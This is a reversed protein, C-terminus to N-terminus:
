PAPWLKLALSALRSAREAIRQEDWTPQAAIEQNMKLLSSRLAERKSIGVSPDTVTFPQNGLRPNGSPTLLTLNGFTHKLGERHKIGVLRPDDTSVVFDGPARAGDPLPWHEAWKEPLVHEITLDERLGIVEDYADRSARELEGLVYRLRATPLVDYQARTSIAIRLDHDSPFRVADGSSDAFAAAFAACSVGNSRLQGAVRLFTNNYAKATLGCLARRVVYSTILDYLRAKEDDDANSAAIVFVLPYATTVDFVSLRRALGQLTDTGEPMVLSRYTPAHAVLADLEADVSAFRRAGVFAKYQTYLETLLVEKGTEAALTHALFFDIRPKKLRGQTTEQKWFPQEFVRWRREMLADVDEEGRLARHFVDNRVLDMAALPEGGSNLTEFIVQADDTEDLTIVIVRFDELLAESLARLRTTRDSEVGENAFADIANRFFWWARLPRPSDEERINGNKFFASSHKKRLAGRDLEVLDWFLERDYTTTHLKFREVKPEKMMRQDTNLLFSTLQEKLQEDGLSQATDRLAALFLQYTTLRQQGDVVDLTPMAGFAFKGRPSLLLAGMYHPYASSRGSFRAEAKDEISAFFKELQRSPTWAYTRQYIPVVFRQPKNLVEGISFPEAKM